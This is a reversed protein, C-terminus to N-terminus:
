HGPCSVGAAEWSVAEQSPQPSTPPASLVGWLLKAKMEAEGLKWCGELSPQPTSTLFCGPRTCTEASGAAGWM